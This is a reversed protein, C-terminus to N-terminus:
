TLRVERNFVWSFKQLSPAAKVKRAKDEAKEALRRIRSPLKCVFEQAQAAEPSLGEKTEVKWKRILFEVISVYDYATYVGIRQAVAAYNDFLNPDEGDYMLHAPM